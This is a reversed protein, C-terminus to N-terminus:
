ACVKKGSVPGMSSKCVDWASGSSGERNGNTMEIQGHWKNFTIGRILFAGNKIGMGDFENKM